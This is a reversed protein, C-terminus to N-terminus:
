EMDIKIVVAKEGKCKGKLLIVTSGPKPVVTELENQHVHLREETEVIKLVAIFEDITEIILAKKRYYGYLSPKKTLITVYIGRVIWPEENFRGNFQPLTRSNLQKNESLSHDDNGM